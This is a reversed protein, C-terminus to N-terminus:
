VGKSSNERPVKKIEETYENSGEFLMWEGEWDNQVGKINAQIVLIFVHEGNSPNKFIFKMLGVYYEEHKIGYAKIIKAIDVSEQEYTTANFNWEHNQVYEGVEKMIHEVRDDFLPERPKENQISSCCVSVTLFLVILIKSGMKLYDLM